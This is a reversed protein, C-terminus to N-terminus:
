GEKPGTIPSWENVFKIHGYSDLEIYGTTGALLWGIWKRSRATEISLGKFGIPEGCRPHAAYLARATAPELLPIIRWGREQAIQEALDVGAAFIGGEYTRPNATTVHLENFNETLAFPWTWAIGIVEEDEIVLVDGDRVNENCQCADYAATTSHFPWVAPTRKEEASM